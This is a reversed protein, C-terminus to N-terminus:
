HRFRPRASAVDAAVLGLEVAHERLLAHLRTRGRRLRSMVTGIPTDTQEAIEAYSYGDIERLIIATRQDDPLQAIAAAIQSPDIDLASSPSLSAQLAFHLVASRRDRHWSDTFVNRLIQRLWKDVNAESRFAHGYRLARLM